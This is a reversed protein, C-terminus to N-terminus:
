GIKKMMDDIAACMLLFGGTGHYDNVTKDRYIYYQYDGVCTGLCIDYIDFGYEDARISREIVDTYGRMIREAYSTDLVGLAVAKAMGYLILFTGSNDIWNKKDDVLDLIQYWRGCKDQYKLLTDFYKRILAEFDSRKQADYDDPLAEYMEMIATAFWGAGRGWVHPSKGTEKDAWKASKSEDYAHRLLGTKEDYNTKYMVFPQQIAIDLLEDDGTMVAYKVCGLGTMYLGDLWVEHPNYLAHYFAGEGTRPFDKMTGFLHDLCAKYREDKTEEYLDFCLTGPQRYDLSELSCWGSNDGNPLGDAGTTSDLWEVIYDRYKKNGTRKYIEQIGRLLYAQQYTFAGRSQCIRYSLDAANDFKIMLSDIFKEAYEIPTYEIM